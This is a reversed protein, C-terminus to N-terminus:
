LTDTRLTVTQAGAAVGRVVAQGIGRESRASRGGIDVEVDPIRTLERGEMQGNGNEDYFVTATVTEGAPMTAPPSSPTTPGGGGGGCAGIVVLIGAALGGSLTKRGVSM